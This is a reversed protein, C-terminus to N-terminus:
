HSRILEASAELYDRCRGLDLRDEGDRLRSQADWCLAYGEFTSLLPELKDVNDPGLGGAIGLRYGLDAQILEGLVDTAFGVDFSRGLGGSPDILVYDILGRYNELKVILKLPDGAMKYANPGIQLVVTTYIRERLRQLQYRDPWAINLQVGDAYTVRKIVDRIQAFLGAARSNYHVLNLVRSDGILITDIDDVYVYQNPNALKGFALGKYSALAGIMLKYDRPWGIEEAIEIIAESQSRTTIGTIGAYPKTRM